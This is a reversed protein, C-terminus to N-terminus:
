RNNFPLTLVSEVITSSSCIKRPELQKTSYKPEITEESHRSIVQMVPTTPLRNRRTLPDNLFIVEM